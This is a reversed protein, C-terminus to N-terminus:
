SKRRSTANLYANTSSASPSRSSAVGPAYRATARACLSSTRGRRRTVIAAVAALAALVAGPQGPSGGGARGAARCACAGGGALAGAPATAADAGPADPAAADAVADVADAGGADPGADGAADAGADRPALQSLLMRVAPWEPGCALTEPADAPCAVPGQLASLRLVGAFTNGGDTSRGLAYGTTTEDSCVFLVGERQRLCGVPVDSVRAFTMGRDESRSLGDRPEAGGFWVTRGDDSLAFGLMAGQTRGIERFSQGGDTTQLLATGPQPPGADGGTGGLVVRVYVTDPDTPDVGAIFAASVAPGAGFPLERLTAGGDDSRLFAGHFPATVAATLYVRSSDSRAMEVTQLYTGPAAVALARYSQGGDDSRFVGSQAAGAPGSTTVAMLSGGDATADVDSVFRSALTADAAVSCRDAAVRLLGDPVGVHVRSARDLALLPDYRGGGTGLLGECLWGFHAGGDDSVLVGFTTGLAITGNGAGLVV